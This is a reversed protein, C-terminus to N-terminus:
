DVEIYVVRGNEITKIYRVGDIIYYTTGSEVVTVAGVPVTYFRRANARYVARRTTRRAVRRATGAYSLPTLPRGITDIFLACAGGHSPVKGDLVKITYTLQSGKLKPNQLVVVIDEIEGDNGGLISLTANPPDKAFSDEGQSGEKVMEETAGHGTIREPRDSFFLTTPSIGHLTMKHDRFTVAHATQVFLYEVDKKDNAKKEAGAKQVVVLGLFISVLMASVLLILHKKTKM